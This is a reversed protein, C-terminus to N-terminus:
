SEDETEERTEPIARSEEPPPIDREIVVPGIYACRPCRYLTGAYGGLWLIM